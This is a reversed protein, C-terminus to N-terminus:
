STGPGTVRASGLRRGARHRPRRRVIVDGGMAAVYATRSDPSVVIGRPYRASRSGPAGGQGHRRRDREPRVHVLQHRAGHTDDPTVAVYKPVAGVKIAQDIELTETDIRYSTALRRLRVGALM